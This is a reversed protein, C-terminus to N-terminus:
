THWTHSINSRTHLTNRLAAWAHRAGREEAERWEVWFPPLSPPNSSPFSTCTPLSVRLFPPLSLPLRPFPPLSVPLSPPLSPPLLLSVNCQLDTEAGAEILAKVAETAGNRAAAMLATCEWQGGCSSRSRCGRVCEAGEVAHRSRWCLVRWVRWGRGVGLAYLHRDHHLTATSTTHLISASINHDLLLEQSLTPNAFM